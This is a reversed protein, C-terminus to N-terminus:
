RFLLWKKMALLKRWFAITLGVVLLPGVIRATNFTYIALVFSIVSLVLLWKKRQMAELFLWVGMVLLFTAINAEFAGRSLMIHWPSIALLAATILAIDLSVRGIKVSKKAPFIAKTLFYTVL